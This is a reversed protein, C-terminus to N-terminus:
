KKRRRKGHVCYENAEVFLIGSHTKEDCVCHGVRIGRWGKNAGIKRPDIGYFPALYRCEKCFVISAALNYAEIANRTVYYSMIIALAKIACADVETWMYSGDMKVALLAFLFWVIAILGIYVCLWHLCAKMLCKMYKM